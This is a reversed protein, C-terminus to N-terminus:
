PNAPGPMGYGEANERTKINLLTSCVAYQPAHPTHLLCALEFHVATDAGLDFEQFLLRWPNPLHRSSAIPTEGCRSLDNTPDILLLLKRASGSATNCSTRAVSVEGHSMKASADVQLGKNWDM